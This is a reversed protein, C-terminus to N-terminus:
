ASRPPPPSLSGPLYYAAVEPSAWLMGSRGTGIWGADRSASSTGRELPPRRSRPRATSWDRRWRPSRTAPRAARQRRRRHRRRPRRRRPARPRARRPPATDLSSSSGQRPAPRELLRGGSLRSSHGHCSDTGPTQTGSPRALTKALRRVAAPPVRALCRTIRAASRSWTSSTRRRCITLAASSARKALSSSSRLNHRHRWSKSGLATAFM